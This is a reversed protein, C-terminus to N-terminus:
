RWYSVTEDLRYHSTVLHDVAQLLTAQVYSTALRHFRDNQDFYAVGEGTDVSGNM